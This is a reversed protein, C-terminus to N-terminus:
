IFRGFHLAARSVGVALNKQVLENGQLLFPVFVLLAEPEKGAPFFLDRSGVPSKQLDAALVLLGEAAQEWPLNVPYYQGRPLTQLLRFSSPQRCTLARAATLFPSPSLKFAPLWYYKEGEGSAWPDQPFWDSPFRRPLREDLRDGAPPHIRWFPLYFCGTEGQPDLVGFDLPKLHEGQQAWLRDCNRCLFVWADKEGQLDAGCYPCMAALFRSPPFDKEQLRGQDDFDAEEGRSILRDGLGDYIMRERFYIPAYVRSITEGIFVPPFAEPAPSKEVSSPQASAAAVQSLVEALTVQSRFMREKLASSAPRLKFARAQLGLYPPLSPTKVALFAADIVRDRPSRRFCDFALGRLRWYPVYIMEQFSRRGQFPELFYQPYGQHLLLLRVRCYACSLIRDTEEL